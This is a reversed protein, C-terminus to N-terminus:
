GGEGGGNGVDFVIAGRWGFLVGSPLHAPIELIQVM